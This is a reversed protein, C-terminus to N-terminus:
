LLLILLVIQCQNQRFTRSASLSWTHERVNREPLGKIESDYGFPLIAATIWLVNMVCCTIIRMFSELGAVSIWERTFEVEEDQRRTVGGSPTPNSYCSSDRHTTLPACHWTEWHNIITVLPRTLGRGTRLAPRPTTQSAHSVSGHGGLEGGAPGPTVQDWNVCHEGLCCFLPSAQLAGGRSGRNRSRVGFFLFCSSTSYRCFLMTYM